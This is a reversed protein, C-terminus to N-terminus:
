EPRQKVQRAKVDVRDSPQLALETPVALAQLDTARHGMGRALEVARQEDEHESRGQAGAFTTTRHEHLIAGTAADYVVYAREYEVELSDGMQYEM